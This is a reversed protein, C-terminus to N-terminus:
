GYVPVGVIYPAIGHEHRTFYAELNAEFAPSGKVEELWRRADLITHNCFLPIDLNLADNIVNNHFIGVPGPEVFIARSYVGQHPRATGRHLLSCRLGWCDGGSFNGQYRYASWRDFWAIYLAGTTRGDASELGACMDPLGLTAILSVFYLGHHLAYSIEGFLRDMDPLRPEGASM